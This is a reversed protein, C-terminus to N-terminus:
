AERARITIGAMLRQKTFTWAHTEDRSRWLTPLAIYDEVYDWLINDDDISTGIGTPATAGTTGGSQAVYWKVPSTDSTRLDGATVTAPGALWPNADQGSFYDFATHARVDLTFTGAMGHLSRLFQIWIDIDPDGDIMPPIEAEWEIKGSGTYEFVQVDGTFPSFSAPTTYTQTASFENFKPTVPFTLPYVPM